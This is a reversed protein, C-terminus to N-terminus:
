HKVDTKSFDDGVFLLPVDLHKALAYSFCDGFNLGAKHRGKGFKQYADIALESQAQDCAVVDINLVQVLRKLARRGSDGHRSSAVIGAEVYSAASMITSSESELVKLLSPATDENELIAILVSTDIARM